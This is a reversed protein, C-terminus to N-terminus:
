KATASDISVSNGQVGVNLEDGRLVLYILFTTIIGVIIIFIRRKNVQKKGM